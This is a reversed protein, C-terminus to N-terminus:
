RRVVDDHVARREGVRRRVLQAELLPVGLGQAGPHAAPQPEVDLTHRDLEDHRAHARDRPRREVHVEEQDGLGADELTGGLAHEHGGLDGGLALGVCLIPERRRERVHRQDADPRREGLGAPEEAAHGVRDARHARERGRRPDRDQQRAGRGARRPRSTASSL